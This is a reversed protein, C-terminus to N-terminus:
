PDPLTMHQTCDADTCWGSFEYSERVPDEPRVLKDGSKVYVQSPAAGDEYNLDFAVM